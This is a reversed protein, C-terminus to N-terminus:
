PTGEVNSSVDVATGCCTVMMTTRCIMEHDVAISLVRGPLPVFSM